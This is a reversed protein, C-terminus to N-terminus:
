NNHSCRGIYESREKEDPIGVLDELDIYKVLEYPICPVKMGIDRYYLTLYLKGDKEIVTGPVLCGLRNKDM